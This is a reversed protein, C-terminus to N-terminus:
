EKSVRNKDYVVSPKYTHEIETQTDSLAKFAQPSKKDSSRQIHTSYSFCRRATRKIFLGLIRREVLPSMMANM